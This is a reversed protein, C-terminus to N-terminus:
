CGILYMVHTYGAVLCLSRGRLPASAALADTNVLKNYPSRLTSSRATSGAPVHLGDERWDRSTPVPNAERTQDEIENSRAEFTQARCGPLPGPSNGFERPKGRGKRHVM